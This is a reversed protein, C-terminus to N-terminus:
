GDIFEWQNIDFATVGHRVDCTSVLEAATRIVAMASLHPATYAIARATIWASDAGMTLCPQTALEHVTDEQQIAGSAASDDCLFSFYSIEGASRLVGLGIIDLNTQPIVLTDSGQLSQICKAIGYTSGGFAIVADTGDAFHFARIKNYYERSDSRTCGTDAALVGDKLVLLTM